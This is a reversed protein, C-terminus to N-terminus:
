IFNSSAKHSTATITVSDLDGFEVDNETTVTLIVIQSSFAEITVQSEEFETDWQNEDLTLTFTDLKNGGNNVQIEYTTQNDVDVSGIADESESEFARYISRHLKTFLDAASSSDLNKALTESSQSTEIVM